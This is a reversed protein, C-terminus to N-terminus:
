RARSRRTASQFSTARAPDASLGLGASNFTVGTITLSSTGTPNFNITLSDGNLLNVGNYGSDGALQNIQTLLTTSTARCRRARRARVSPSTTTSSLGLDGTPRAVRM